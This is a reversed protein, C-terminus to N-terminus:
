NSHSSQQLPVEITLIGHDMKAQIHETLCGRPLKIAREFAGHFREQRFVKIEEYDFPPLIKGSIIISGSSFGLKVDGPSAGALDASIFLSDRTGYVDVRPGVMSSVETLLEIFDSGLTKAINSRRGSKRM